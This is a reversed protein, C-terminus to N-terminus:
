CSNVCIFLHHAFLISLALILNYLVQVPLQSVGEIPGSYQESMESAVSIMLDRSVRPKWSTPQKFFLRSEVHFMFSQNNITQLMYNFLIKWIMAYVLLFACVQTTAVAHYWFRMTTLLWFM